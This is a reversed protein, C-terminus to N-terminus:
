KKAARSTTEESPKEVVEAEPEASVEALSKQLREHGEDNESVLAAYAKRLTEEDRAGVLALVQDFLAKYAASEAGILALSKLINDTINM